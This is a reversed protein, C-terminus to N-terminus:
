RSALALAFNVAEDHYYVYELKTGVRKPSSRVFNIWELELQRADYAHDFAKKALVQTPGFERDHEAIRDDTRHANAIGCKILEHSVVIYFHGPNDLNIGYEACFPCGSDVRVRNDITAKWQHDPNNPCVWWVEGSGVMLETALSPDRLQAALDPRETALDTESPFPRLRTCFPCGTGNARHYVPAEWIHHPKESCVWEVRCHSGHKLETALDPDVLQQALEPHTTALDTDGPIPARGSCLPCGTLQATRSSVVAEWIHRSDDPCRWGVKKNSQSLLQTALEPNILQRALEPHTTALDNEGPFPLKPPESCYPCGTGSGGTRSYVRAKWIHHGKDPCRWEVM